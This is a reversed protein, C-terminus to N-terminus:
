NKLIKRTIQIQNDFSFKIFYVGNSLNALSIETGINTEVFTLELTKGSVDLVEVNALKPNGRLVWDAYIIHTTPNPYIKFDEKLEVIVDDIVEKVEAITDKEEFARQTDCDTGKCYRYKVQNGALDYNFILKSQATGTYYLLCLGAGLLIQTKM